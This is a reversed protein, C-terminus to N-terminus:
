RATPLKELNQKVSRLYSELGERAKSRLRGGLLAGTLGGFGDSRSRQGAVLFYHGPQTEDVALFKLEIGTNFYHSAYLMKSAIAYKVVDVTEPQYIVVHNLRIIPKLGFEVKSWYFFEEEGPIPEHPYELLFEFLRPFLEPLDPDHLMEVFQEHVLFPQKKDHLEGLADNGGNRYSELFDVIMRHALAQGREKAGPQSWDITRFAAMMSDSM